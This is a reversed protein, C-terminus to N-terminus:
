MGCFIVHAQLYDANFCFNKSRQIKIKIRKAPRIVVFKIIYHHM